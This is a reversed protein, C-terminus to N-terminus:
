FLSLYPSSGLTNMNGSNLRKVYNEKRSFHRNCESGVPSECFSSCSRTIRITTTHLSQIGLAEYTIQESDTIPLRLRLPQLLNVARGHVTYLPFPPPLRPEKGQLLAPFGQTM